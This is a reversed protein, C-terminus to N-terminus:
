AGVGACAKAIQTAFEITEPAVAKVIAFFTEPSVMGALLRAFAVGIEVHEPNFVVLGCGPADSGIVLVNNM